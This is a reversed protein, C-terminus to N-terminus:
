PRLVIKGFVKRAEILRHAEAAQKLPLERDIVPRLRGEGALAILRELTERSAPSNGIGIIRAQKGVLSWVDFSVTPDGLAGPTVLRGGRGLAEVSRGFTEAGVPDFVVDVALEAVRPDGYEYAEVGLLGIRDLKGASATAFVTAGLARGIDVSAQGTASSAAQVLLRDGEKLGALEVIAWWATRYPVGLAAATAAPLADSTSWVRDAPAAVLEAYCGHAGTVLVREGTDARTGAADTGLITPLKKAGGARQNVDYHNVGAAEVRILVEGDAPEPDPVEELRLVEPAGTEHMVIARVRDV